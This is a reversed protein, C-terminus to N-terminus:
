EGSAQTGVKQRQALLFAMLDHFDREPLDEAINSPMPSMNEVRWEVVEDKPYSVLNGAADALVLTQGEDSQLLGTRVVDGALLIATARFAQDVNRSPDLTDELLRDLGRYGIGALEPALKAGVEGIRHCASCTKKFVEAGRQENTEAQAFGAKRQRILKAIREEVPPLDRTLEAIRKEIDPLNARYLGNRVDRHSLLRLSAKGATIEALLREGGSPNKALAEALRRALRQPATRLQTALLEVADDRRVGGLLGACHERISYSESGDAIIRGVLAVHNAADQRILADCVAQRVDQSVSKSTAMAVLRDQLATLHMSDILDIGAKLANKDESSLLEGALADAWRIVHPRPKAGRQQLGDHYAKMRTVQEIPNTNRCEQILTFLADLRDEPVYRAIHRIYEDSIKGRQRAQKRVAGLLFTGSEPTTLGTAVDAILANDEADGFAALEAWSGPARLQDRLAMRVGYRLHTDAEAVARRLELLPFLFAPNPHRAVAEAATRQVFADTDRLGALALEHEVSNWTGRESLIRQAHVRVAREEDRAAAQLRADDLAGLRELVWHGHARAPGNANSTVAALVPKVAAKGIRDVLQNTARIRVELNGHGLDDILEAVNATTWSKRPPTPRHAGNDGRYVVRWIRGRERDRGPHELPVEYHGIIRNYFDAIYLAGDPGLRIDVPRFWPDDSRIFDPQEVAELTSGHPDLRDYNVRNTVVNGIYVGDRYAPPFHDAAYYVIGCIATSGHDHKCMEPGFGLGDHPKGFSPYWGGRLLAYVPKSHCDATYLNGLADFCSGFPNVQGHTYHECRTGDPRIRFTNGSHMHITHGDSGKVYSDNAYGHNVYIWGDFGWRLSNIMGHTDRRDITGYLEEKKDARDDGDTDTFKYIKPISFVIAGDSVPLLGIPIRLHEAFKTVKDMRGDGDTDELIKVCDKSTSLDEPPFPYETSETVWLRGRDDFALNMPKGIVPESAVLEIEFGPPLILKEREQEPTLPDTSAIHAAYRDEAELRGATIGLVLLSTLMM